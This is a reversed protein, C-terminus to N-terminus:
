VTTRDKVGRPKGPTTRRRGSMKDFCMLRAADDDLKACEQLGSSIDDSQACLSSPGIFFIYVMIGVAIRLGTQYNFRRRLSKM